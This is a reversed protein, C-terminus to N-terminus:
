LAELEDLWLKAHADSPMKWDGRPSLTVTGVKVGDPVCSRKFQQTFFRRFFTKLWKLITKEDFEDAFVYKAIRFIKLPSFGKRVFNYLYFDHLVYPGVIDETKQSIDEDKSPLLEPSVPTDLIDFLVSKLKPKSNIAVYRVLYKVLTKPISANVGYMSMHDGNYTAWGLALESLDGTGVVFGGNMNSIDMIVQTRERAQANEYTVDLVDLDHKIDKLHRTVSKSIDIKLLKVGLCKALAISNDLTRSTTGFCPMTVAIVDKLDRGLSQMARVSVLLALTSDLGGSLGLVISKANTHAIRTALGKAQMTLILESREKLDQGEDPVFPTKAFKRTLFTDIIPMDFEVYQYSNDLSIVDTSVKAKESLIYDVDIESVALDNSFLTNKALIQGNEAIISQGSYVCDTTSEGDGAYSSVYGICLKGSHAIIQTLRYNESGIVEPEACPNVIINAGNQSHNVSPSLIATKEQGIEIAFSFSDKNKCKFILKNGFPVVYNAITISTNEGDYRSFWRSECADGRNKLCNKPVAGLIEGGYIVIATDFLRNFASIPAGVVLIVDLDKTNYAIKALASKVSETLNQMAFLDGTTYGTLVLEPFTLLKVGHKQATIVSNIISNTNFDVDAIKIKPSVAGVKIFGNKM